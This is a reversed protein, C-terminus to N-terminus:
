VARRNGPLTTPQDDANSRAGQWYHVIHLAFRFVALNFQEDEWGGFGDLRELLMGLLRVCDQMHCALSRVAHPRDPGRQHIAFALPRNAVSGGDPRPGQPAPM